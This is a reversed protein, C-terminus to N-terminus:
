EPSLLENDVYRWGPGASVSAVRACGELGPAFSGDEFEEDYEVVNVVNGTNLDVIAARTLM